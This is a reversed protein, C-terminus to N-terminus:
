LERLFQFSPHAFMMRLLEATAQDSRPHHRARAVFGLFWEAELTRGIEPALAGYLREAHEKLLEGEARDIFYSRKQRLGAQLTILEGRPDGEQQLADGLVLYNTPDDPAARIASILPSPENKQLEAARPIPAIPVFRPTLYAR